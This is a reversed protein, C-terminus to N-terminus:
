MSLSMLEPAKANQPSDVAAHNAYRLADRYRGAQFANAAEGFFMAGNNAGDRDAQTEDAPSPPAVNAAVANENPLANEAVVNGAPAGAYGDTDYYYCYPSGYGYYGDGYGGGWWWPWWSSWWFPAIVFDGHHHFDHFHD